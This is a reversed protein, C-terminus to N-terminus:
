YIQGSTEDKFMINKAEQDRHNQLSQMGCGVVRCVGPGEGPIDPLEHCHRLSLVHCLARLQVVAFQLRRAGASVRGKQGGARGATSSSWM